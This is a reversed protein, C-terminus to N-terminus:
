KKLSENLHEKARKEAEKHAADASKRGEGNVAQMKAERHDKDMQVKADDYVKQARDDSEKSKAAADRIEVDRQKWSDQFAAQALTTIADRAKAAAKIAEDHAEDVRKRADKDPAAKKALSYVEDAQEKAEKYMKTAHRWADDLLQKAENYTKTKEVGTESTAM